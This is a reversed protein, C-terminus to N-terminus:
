KGLEKTYARAIRWAGVGADRRRPMDPHWSKRSDAILEGSRRYEAVWGQVRTDYYVRVDIGRVKGTAM